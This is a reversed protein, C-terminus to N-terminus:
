EDDETDEPESAEATQEPLAYFGQIDGLAIRRLERLALIRGRRGDLSTGIPGGQEDRLTGQEVMDAVDHREIQIADDLFQMFCQTVPHHLWAAFEGTTMEAIRSRREAALSEENVIM